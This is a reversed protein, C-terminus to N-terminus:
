EIPTSPQPSGSPPEGSREPGVAPDAITVPSGPRVKTLGEVIVREGETLGELVVWDKDSWAGTRIPRREVKNESNVVYVYAGQPAQSVARLPVVLSNPREWGKVRVKVFQGPKLTRESNEFTARLEVTGTKPDINVNEFDLEGEQEVPAGDLLTIEVRPGDAGTILVLSGDKEGHRWALFDAESVQFSVYLPDVQQMVALLSNQGADVLSGVDKLAKGIYGTLPATVETYSLELDAKALQAKALRLAARASAQAAVKQDLDTQTIAGPQRVSQLRDTEQEALHLRTEAQEVQAAAVERDAEFSRRDITFLRDGQKLYAGEQFDRTELFGQIRARIEVTKSPQSLGVYEYLVPATKVEASVVTVQPPPLAGGPPGQAEVIGASLALAMVLASSMWRASMGRLGRHLSLGALNAKM